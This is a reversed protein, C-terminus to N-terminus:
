DARLAVSPDVRAARLAPLVSAAAAVILLALAVAVFVMPDHPSQDFLLAQTWRGTGFAIGSGILLGVAVIGVGRTVVLWAVDRASAGLALRVGLEQRRQAVDYAILSYLGVSALVLALSGFAVFMIAGFRWARYNPNVLDALPVVSAYATGPLERQLRRRLVGVLAAPEGNVRVM